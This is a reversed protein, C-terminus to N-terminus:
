DSDSRDSTTSQTHCEQARSYWSRCPYNQARGSVCIQRYIQDGLVSYTTLLCLFLFSGVDNEVVILGRERELFKILVKADTERLPLNEEGGAVGAFKTRFSEFTFLSDAPSALTLEHREVVANAAKELLPIFVYDGWWSTDKHHYKHSGYNLLGEDGVLGVQELAWWLPKGVVFSAIRTPLWGPNYISM